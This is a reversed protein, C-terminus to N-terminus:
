TDSLSGSESKPSVVHFVGNILKHLGYLGGLGIMIAATVYGQRARHNDLEGHEPLSLLCAAAGLLILAGLCIERIGRKRIEAHREAILAELATDAEAAPIDHSLLYERVSAASVGWIIKARAQTFLEEPPM